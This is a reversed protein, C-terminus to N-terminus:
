KRSTPRDVAAAATMRRTIYLPAAAPVITFLYRCRWTFGLPEFPLPVSQTLAVSLLLYSRFIRAHTNRSMRREKEASQM